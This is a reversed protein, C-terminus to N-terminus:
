NDKIQEIINKTRVKEFPENSVPSLYVSVQVSIIIGTITSLMSELVSRLTTASKIEEEKLNKLDKSAYLLKAVFDGHKHPHQYKNLMKSAECIKYGTNEKLFKAIHGSPVVKSVIEEEPLVFDDKKNELDTM